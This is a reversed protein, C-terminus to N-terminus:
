VEDAEVVPLGAANTGTVTGEVKLHVGDHIDQAPDVPSGHMPHQDDFQFRTAGTTVIEAVPQSGRRLLLSPLNGTQVADAAGEGEFGNGDQAEGGGLSKDRVGLAYLTNAAQLRGDVQLKDGIQLDACTIPNRGHDVFTTAADFHLRLSREHARVTLTQAACDIQELRGEMDRVPRPQGPAGAAGAVFAHVEDALTYHIENTVPDRQAQVAPRWDIVVSTASTPVLYVREPRFEAEFTMPATVLPVTVGTQNTRLDTGRMEASSVELELGDYYGAPFAGVWGLLVSTTDLTMVDVVLPAATMTLPALRDHMGKLRIESVTLWLEHMEFVPQLDASITVAAAADQFFVSTSSTSGGSSGGGGSGGCGVAAACVLALALM